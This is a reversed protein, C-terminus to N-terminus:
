AAASDGDWVKRFLWAGTSASRDYNKVYDGDALRSVAPRGRLRAQPTFLWRENLDVSKRPVSRPTKRVAWQQGAHVPDPVRATDPTTGAVRDGDFVLVAGALCFLNLWPELLLTHAATIADPQV